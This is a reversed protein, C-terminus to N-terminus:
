AGSSGADYGPLSGECVLDDRAVSTIVVHRLKLRNVAEAVRWPEDPSPAPTKGHPVACFRCLRTCVDGLIMFTLQRQSWCERLNPCLASQCVTALQLDAILGDVSVAVGDPSFEKRLWDPYRRM